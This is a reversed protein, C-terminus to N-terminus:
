GAKSTVCCFHISIFYLSCFGDWCPPFFRATFQLNTSETSSRTEVLCCYYFNNVIETTKGLQPDFAARPRGNKYWLHLSVSLSQQSQNRQMKEKIEKNDNNNSNNIVNSNISNNTNSNDNNEKVTVAPGTRWQGEQGGGPQAEGEEVCVGWHKITVCKRADEENGETRGTLHSAEVHRSCGLERNQESWALFKKCFLNFFTKLTNRPRQRMAVLKVQKQRAAATFDVIGWGTTSRLQPLFNRSSTAGTFGIGAHGSGTQAMSKNLVGSSHLNSCWSLNLDSSGGTFFIM